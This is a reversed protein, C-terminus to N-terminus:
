IQKKGGFKEFDLRLRLTMIPEKEGQLHV